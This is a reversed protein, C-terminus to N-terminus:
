AGDGKRLEIQFASKLVKLIKQVSKDAEEALLTAQPNRFVFRMSLSTRGDPNHPGAYRDIIDFSELYPVAAREVASKIEQYFIDRSVFFSLDRVVAPVKPPPEYAFVAPKKELLCGL